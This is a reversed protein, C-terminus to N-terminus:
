PYKEDCGSDDCSADCDEIFFGVMRDKNLTLELAERFFKAATVEDRAVV